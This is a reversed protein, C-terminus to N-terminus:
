LTRRRAADPHRALPHHGDGAGEGVQEGLVDTVVEGTRLGVTGPFGCRLLWERGGFHCV